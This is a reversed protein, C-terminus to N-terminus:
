AHPDVLTKFYWDHVTGVLDEELSLPCPAYATSSVGRQNQDLVQTDETMTNHMLETLKPLDYDVGDKADGNVLWIMAGSTRNVELPTYIILQAYDDFLIMHSFPNFNIVTWGGTWETLDGLLRSRRKGDMSASEHGYGIEIQVATQLYKSDTDDFVPELSRGLREMRASYTEGNQDVPEVEPPSTVLIRSLDKHVHPVHYNERFNEISMKWNSKSVFEETAAAKAKGIGYQAVFPRIRGIFEEFDPPTGTALCVFIIGEMVGVACRELGWEKPDFDKPMSRPRMLTGDLKYTWAHYPCVLAKVNGEDKLCIHSGRHRCVNYFANVEGSAGRVLIVSESAFTYLKFDGVNPIQSEHGAILWMQERIRSIDKDFCEQSTYYYGPLSYGQRVESRAKEAASLPGDTGVPAPSALQTSM